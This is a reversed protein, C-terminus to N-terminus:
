FKLTLAARGQLGESASEPESLIDQKRYSLTLSLGVPGLMYRADLGLTGGVGESSGYSLRGFPSLTLSKTVPAHLQGGVAIGGEDLRTDVSLEVSFRDNITLTSRGGLLPGKAGLLVQFNPLTLRTDAGLKLEPIRVQREGHRLYNWQGILAAWAPGSLLDAVASLALLEGVSFSGQNSTYNAVDDSGGPKSLALTRAAYAALNTQAYLYAMAEQYSISQRLAWRSVMRSANITEQNVGGATVNLLQDKSLGPTNYHTVGSWPANLEVDPSGGFRRVDGGHGEEHSYTMATMLGLSASTWEFLRWGFNEDFNYRKSLQAILAPLLEYTSAHAEVDSFPNALELRYPAGPGPTPTKADAGSKPDRRLTQGDGQAVHTLEHALLTQGKSTHPQFEGHSFAINNGLTFARAGVSDAAKAADVGTHLRVMSFNRGFRPEFYARQQPSLPSGGNVVSAAAASAGHSPASTTTAAKRRLTKDEEAECQACKRQPTHATAYTIPGVSRGAVVADAIRDAEHELPDDVPGLQVPSPATAAAKTAGARNGEVSLVTSAAIRSM